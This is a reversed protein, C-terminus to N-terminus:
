QLLLIFGQGGAADRVAKILPDQGCVLLWMMITIEIVKKYKIIVYGLLIFGNKHSM